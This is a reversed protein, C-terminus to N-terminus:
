VGVGASVAGWVTREGLQVLQAREERCAGARGDCVDGGCAQAGRRQVRHERRDEREAGRALRVVQAARGSRRRREGRHLPGMLARQTVDAALQVRHVRQLAHDLLLPTNHRMSIRAGIHVVQLEFGVCPAPRATSLQFTQPGLNCLSGPLELLHLTRESGRLRRKLVQARTM